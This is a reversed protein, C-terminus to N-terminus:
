NCSINVLNKTFLFIHVFIDIFMILTDIVGRYIDFNLVLISNYMIM